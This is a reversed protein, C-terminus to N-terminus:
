IADGPSREIHQEVKPFGRRCESLGLTKLEGRRIAVDGVDVLSSPAPQSGLENVSLEFRM